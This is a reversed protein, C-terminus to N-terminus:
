RTEPRKGWGDSWHWVGNQQIVFVAREISLMKKLGLKVTGLFDEYSDAQMLTNLWKVYGDPYMGITSPLERNDIGALCRAILTWRREDRICNAIKLAERLDKRAVEPYKRRKKEAGALLMDCIAQKQRLFEMQSRTLDGTETKAKVGIKKLVSDIKDQFVKRGTEAREGDWPMLDIFAFKCRTLIESPADEALLILEDAYSFAERPRNLRSALKLGFYCALVLLRSNSASQPKELMLAIMQLAASNKGSELLAELHYLQIKENLLPRTGNRLLHRAVRISTEEKNFIGQLGHLRGLDLMIEIAMVRDIHRELASLAQQFCISSKELDGNLLDQRGILWSLYAQDRSNLKEEKNIDALAQGAAFYLGLEQLLLIIKGRRNFSDTEICVHVTNKVDIETQGELINRFEFEKNKITEPLGEPWNKYCLKILNDTGQDDIKGISEDIKKLLLKMANSSQAKLAFWIKLNSTDPLYEPPNWQKIAKWLSKYIVTEQVETLSTKWKKMEESNSFSYRSSLSCKNLVGQSVLKGLVNIIGRQPRNLARAILDSYFPLPILSATRLISKELSTYM